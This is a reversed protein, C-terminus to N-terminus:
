TWSGFILGVPKGRLASLRVTEGTRKKKRDLIDIEFDPAETGARPVGVQREKVYNQLADWEDGTMDSIAVARARREEYSPRPAADAM